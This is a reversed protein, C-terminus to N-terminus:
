VQKVKGGCIFKFAGNGSNYVTGPLIVYLLRVFVFMHKFVIDSQFNQSTKLYICSVLSFFVETHFDVIKVFRM